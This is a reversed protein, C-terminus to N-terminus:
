YRRLYHLRITVGAWGSAAIWTPMSGLAPRLGLTRLIALAVIGLVVTGAEDIRDPAESEWEDWVDIASEIGGFLASVPVGLWVIPNLWSFRDLPEPRDKFGYMAGRLFAM